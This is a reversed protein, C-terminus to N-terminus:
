RYLYLLKPGCVDDTVTSSVNEFFRGLLDFPTLKKKKYPRVIQPEGEIGALEAALEAAEQLGGLTDVLGLNWAQLGTFISGNALPYVEEKDMGRGESVAQVFQEYADMVVSQLMLEEKKTMSRSFSCVDKFEGSKITESEVGLKEMLGRFTMFGMRVGISGTITGPNAIIRDGACAIYYGGSASVAAMAAVVPKQESARRIATHIEQSIAVEGGGSNIHVVIAKISRSDAWRDLQQIVPRGSEETMPGFMEVVGINGGLGAFGIDTEPTLLGIFMLGMFGLAFLFVLAIIVGVVVDRKRAM